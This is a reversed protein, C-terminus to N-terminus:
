SRLSAISLPHLREIASDRLDRIACKPTLESTLNVCRNLAAVILACKTDTVCQYKVWAILETDQAVCEPNNLRVVRSLGEVLSRRFAEERRANKACAKVRRHVDVRRRDISMEVVCVTDQSVEKQGLLVLLVQRREQFVREEVM